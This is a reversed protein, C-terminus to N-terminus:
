FHEEGGRGAAILGSFGKSKSHRRLGEIGSHACEMLREKELLGSVQWPNSTMEESTNHQPLLLFGKFIRIKGRLM